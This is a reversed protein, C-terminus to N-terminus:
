NAAMGERAGQFMAEVPAHEGSWIELSRAGQYILMSFGNAFAFGRSRAAARISTITAVRVPFEINKMAFYLSM